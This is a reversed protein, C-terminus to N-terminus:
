CRSAFAEKRIQPSTPSCSSSFSDLFIQPDIPNILEEFVTNWIELRLMLVGKAWYKEEVSPFTLKRCM